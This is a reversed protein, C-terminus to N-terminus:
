LHHATRVALEHAMTTFWYSYCESSLPGGDNYHLHAFLRLNFYLAKNSNFAITNGCSDYYIAVSQMNLRYVECLTELVSAFIKITQINGRLFTESDEEGNKVSSFVKIGNTTRGFIKLNQAPIVDCGDDGRSLGEPLATMHREASNLGTAATGRSSALSSALMENLKEHSFADAEPSVPTNDGATRGTQSPPIHQQQGTSDTESYGSAATHQSADPMKTSGGRSGLLKRLGRRKKNRLSDPDQNNTPSSASAAQAQSAAAKAAAAAAAPSSAVAEAAAAAEAALRALRSDETDSEGSPSQSIDGQDSGETAVKSHRDKQDSAPPPSKSASAPEAVAASPTPRPENAKPKPKAPPKYEKVKVKKDVAFGRARLTDLPAEILNSLLFADELECRQLIIDGLASGVDFFDLDETVYLTIAWRGNRSACCSVQQVKDHVGLSFVAQVGDVQIVQLTREDLYREADKVLPRSTNKPSILLAKREKMRRAFERTLSTEKQQRGTIRHNKNVSKSIYRSGLREYLHELDTEHPAHLVHSFMRGLLSNDILYIDEAKALVPRAATADDAEKEDNDEGEEKIEVDQNYALLFPAQRIQPSINRMPESAIRHLLYIYKEHGVKELVEKPKTVLRYLIDHVSAESKVGASALFPSFSISHFLLAVIEDAEKGDTNTFYVEAPKYWRVVGTDDKCPVFSERQLAKMHSSNFDTSRSSLYSFTEEFLSLITDRLALSEEDQGAHELLMKATVVIELLRKLLLQPPPKSALQFSSGYTHGSKRDVEPDLIIFGMIQCAPGSYCEEPSRMEKVIVGDGFPDKRACPLFHTKKFSSYNRTWEREYVGGPRLRKSIFNLCQLRKEDTLDDQTSLHQLFPQLPPNVKCGLKVLFKGDASNVSLKEDPPWQLIRIFPLNLDVLDSEGIYLESPAFTRSKDNSAPLYAMSRLNQLDQTTLTASRLYDVLAKPNDSWNLKDLNSFLFEVSVSKRVGLSLLFDNSVGFEKLEASVKRFSSIGSFAELRASALYLESAYDTTCIGPDHSVDTVKDEKDKPTPTDYPICRKDSLLNRVLGEFQAGEYRGHRYQKKLEKSLMALITNRINADSALGKTM